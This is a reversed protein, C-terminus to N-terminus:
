NHMHASCDTERYAVTCKITSSGQAQLSIISSQCDLCKSNNLDRNLRGYMYWHFFHILTSMNKRQSQGGSAKEESGESVGHSDYCLAKWPFPLKELERNFRTECHINSKATNPRLNRQQILSQKKKHLSRLWHFPGAHSMSLSKHEWFPGGQLAPITWPLGERPHAAPFHHIGKECLEGSSFVCDIDQQRSGSGIFSFM